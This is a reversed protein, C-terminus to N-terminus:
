HNCTGAAARAAPDPAEGPGLGLVTRLFREYGGRGEASVLQAECAAGFRASVAATVDALDPPAAGSPMGVVGKLGAYIAEKLGDVGRAAAQTAEAAVTARALKAREAM